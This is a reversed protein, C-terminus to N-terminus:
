ESNGARLAQRHQAPIRAVQVVFRALPHVVAAAAVKRYLVGGGLVVAACPPRTEESAEGICDAGLLVPAQYELNTCLHMATPAAAVETMDEVIAGFRCALTM